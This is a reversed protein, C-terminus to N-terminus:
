VGESGPPEPLYVQLDRTPAFGKKPQLSTHKHHIQDVIIRSSKVSDTFLSGLEELCNDDQMM